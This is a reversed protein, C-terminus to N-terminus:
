INCRIVELLILVCHSLISLGALPLEIKTFLLLSVAGLSWQGWILLMDKLITTAAADGERAWGIKNQKRPPIGTAKVVQDWRFPRLPFPRKRSFHEDTNNVEKPIYKPAWLTLLLHLQALYMAQKLTEWSFSGREFYSCLTVKKAQPWIGFVFIMSPDYFIWWSRPRPIGDGVSYDKTNQM